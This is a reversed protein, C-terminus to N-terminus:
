TNDVEDELPICVKIKTGHGPVSHILLTGRILTARERMGYLGLGTGKIEINQLDFGRGQDAVVLHLQQNQEYFEVSLQDINAYKAANIMAEQCIRYLTTEIKSSYRREEGTARLVTVIGYTQEFQKIFSRLAPLIGWDDLSCPRLEVAIHRVENLAQTAMEKVLIFHERLDDSLPLQEIMNLGVIMSYITQGVGDHLERSVRKREEEQAQLIYSTMVKQFSHYEQKEGESLDQFIVESLSTLTKERM